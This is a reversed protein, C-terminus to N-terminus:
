GINENIIKSLQKISVPKQIFATIGDEMLRKTEYEMAYGSLVIVKKTPDIKIFEQFLQRGGIEPMMMDMFVLSIEKHLDSFLKIAEVPSGCLIPVYGLMDLIEGMLERIV